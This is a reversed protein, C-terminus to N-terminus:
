LAEKVSSRYIFYYDKKLVHMLPDIAREDGLKGLATAVNRKAILSFRYDYLVQILPEVFKEDGIMGLAEAANSRVDSDKNKLATILGNINKRKIMKEINPKKDFIGM